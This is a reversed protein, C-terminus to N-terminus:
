KKNGLITIIYMWSLQSIEITIDIYESLIKKLEDSNLYNIVDEYKDDLYKIVITKRRKM